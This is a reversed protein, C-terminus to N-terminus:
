EFRLCLIPDLRAARAAPYLGFFIGVAISFGFALLVSSASLYPVWGGFQALFDSVVAGLLIGVIGGCGSIVSAEILFQFMIDGSKAGVAKRLGIERTRETVSVLMINMIGIGGVLLSIGAISALLVTFTQTVTSVADLLQKQSTVTVTNSRRFKADFAASIQSVAADTDELKGVQAYLASVYRTGALRQLTSVPVFVVNDQDAGFSEGKEEMVGVVTFPQGRVAIVQGIPDAGDFVNEVITKGVVAVRRRQAVDSELIFRGSEPHFSRIEPFDETVGQVSVTASNSKWSVEAQVQIVPMARSVLPVRKLVYDADSVELSVSAFSPTVLILNTGMSDIQESVTKQAGQGASMLAIVAAVGIIVGLMTLVTRIRNGTLARMAMVFSETFKV